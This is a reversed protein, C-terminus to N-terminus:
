RRERGGGVITLRWTLAILYPMLCCMFLILTAAFTFNPRGDPLIFPADLPILNALFSFALYILAISVGTRYSLREPPTGRLGLFTGVAALSGLLVGFTAMAALLLWGDRGRFNSHRETVSAYVLAVALVLGGVLASVRTPRM